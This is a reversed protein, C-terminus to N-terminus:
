WMVFVNLEYSWPWLFRMLSVATLKIFDSIMLHMENCTWVKGKIHQCNV